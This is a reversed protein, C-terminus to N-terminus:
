MIGPMMNSYKGMKEETKKDIKTFADNLAVLIMDELMSIDDQILEKAEESIKVSKISKDGMAEITVLSSKGEFVTNDLEEKLNNIDRQMNQAQKMLAQMNM